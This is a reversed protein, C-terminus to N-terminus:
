AFVLYCGVVVLFVFRSSHRSFERLGGGAGGGAESGRSGGGGGPRGSGGTCWIIPCDCLILSKQKLLQRKCLACVKKQPQVNKIVSIYDFATLFM